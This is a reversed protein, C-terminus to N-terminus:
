SFDWGGDCRMLRGKCTVAEVVVAAKMAGGSM